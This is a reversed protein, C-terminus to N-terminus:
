LQKQLEYLWMYVEIPTKNALPYEKLQNIIVTTTSKMENVVFTTCWQEYKDLEFIVNNITLKLINDDIASINYQIKFKNLASEPFGLSYVRTNVTKVFKSSVKYNTFHQMLFAGENYVKYFVGEKFLYSGFCDNSQLAIKEQIGM